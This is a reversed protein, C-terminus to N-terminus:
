CLSLTSAYGTVQGDRVTVGISSNTLEPWQGGASVYLVSGDADDGTSILRDPYADLLDELESGVGIGAETVLGTASGTETVAPENRDGFGSARPDGVSWTWLLELGDLRRFAISLDGWWLVRYEAGALCQPDDGVGTLELEYWGTDAGVPGLIAAIQTVTDDATQEPPVAEGYWDPGLGFVQGRELAVAGAAPEDPVEDGARVLAYAESPERRPAGVTLYLVDDILVAELEREFDSLARAFGAGDQPACSAASEPGVAPSLVTGVLDLAFGCTGVDIILQDSATDGSMRVPTDGIEWTGVLDDLTPVIGAALPVFQFQGTPGSLRLSPQARELELTTAGFIGPAEVDCMVLSTSAAGLGDATPTSWSGGNCGDWGLLVGREARVLPVSPGTWAAGDVTRLLWIGEVGDLVSPPSAPSATTPPTTTPTSEPTTIPAPLPDPRTAPASTESRWSLMAGIGVAVLATVAAVLLASRVFSRDGLSPSDDLPRIGSAEDIIRQRIRELEGPAPDLKALRVTTAIDHDNM